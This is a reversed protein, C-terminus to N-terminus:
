EEIEEGIEMGNSLHRLIDEPKYGPEIEAETNDDYLLYYGVLQGDAIKDLVEDVSLKRMGSLTYM